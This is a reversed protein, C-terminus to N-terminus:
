RTPLEKAALLCWMVTPHDMCPAQGWLSRRSRSSTTCSSTARTRPNQLSEPRHHLLPRESSSPKQPKWAQLPKWDLPHKSALHTLSKRKKHSKNKKNNWLKKKKSKLKVGTDEKLLNHSKPLLNLLQELSMVTSLDTSNTSQLSEGVVQTIAMGLAKQFLHMSVLFRSTLIPPLLALVSCTSCGPLLPVKLCVLLESSNKLYCVLDSKESPLRLNKEKMIFIASNPSSPNQKINSSLMMCFKTILNWGELKQM